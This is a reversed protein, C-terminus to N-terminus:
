VGKLPNPIKNQKSGIASITGKDKKVDKEKAYEEALGPVSSALLEDNVGKYQTGQHKEKSLEQLFSLKQKESFLDSNNSPEYDTGVIAEGTAEDHEHNIDHEAAEGITMAKVDAHSIGLGKAVRERIQVSNAPYDTTVDFITMSINKHEPFENHRAQVPTRRPASVSTVHFESLAAKIQTGCNTPCDGAIKVKFEYVKKSETLYEKFSKM